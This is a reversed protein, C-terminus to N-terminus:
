EYWVHAIAGAGEVLALMKTSFSLPLDEFDEIYTCGAPVGCSYAEATSTASANYFEL